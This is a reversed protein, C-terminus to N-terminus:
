SISTCEHRPTSNLMLTYSKLLTVPQTSSSDHPLCLDFFPSQQINSANAFSRFAVIQKTMDTKWRDALFLEAGVPNQM